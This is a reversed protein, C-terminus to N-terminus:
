KLPRNGRLTLAASVIESRENLTAIASRLNEKQGSRLHVKASVGIKVLSSVLQPLDSLKTLASVSVIASDPRAIGAGSSALSQGGQLDVAVSRQTAAQSQEEPKM